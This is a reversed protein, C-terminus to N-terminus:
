GCKSWGCGHCVRCGSEYAVAHGCEPCSQSTGLVRAVPNPKKFIGERADMHRGLAKAIADPCSLVLEGNHWTSQESRIGKLQEEILRPDVGCRLALSILRGIAEVNANTAGGAKGIQVFVEFPGYEDENIVVYMAGEGTQYRQTTGAMIDPRARPVGMVPTGLEGSQAPTQAPAARELQGAHPLNVTVSPPEASREHAAQTSKEQAPAESGAAQESGATRNVKAINLVQEPRSGDRYVTVGKCGLQYALRYATEVEEPTAEHPFNITKSIANDVGAHARAV